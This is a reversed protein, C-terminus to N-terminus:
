IIIITCVNWILSYLGYKFHDIGNEIENDNVHEWGVFRGQLEGCQM